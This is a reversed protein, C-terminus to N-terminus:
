KLLLVYVYAIFENITTRVGESSSYWKKPDYSQPSISISGVELEGVFAKQFLMSSRRSHPGYSVLNISRIDLNNGKIWTKLALASHYTRDRKVDPAAVAILENEQMGVAILTARALHAYDKYEKLYSGVGLPGGTTIMKTYKDEKYIKAAEVLAYDPLWGEVVLVKSSLPSSKSLFSNVQSLLSFFLLFSM